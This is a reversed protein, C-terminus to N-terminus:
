LKIEKNNFNLNEDKNLYNYIEETTHNEEIKNVKLYEFVLKQILLNSILDISFSDDLYPISKNKLDKNYNIESKTKLIQLHFIM